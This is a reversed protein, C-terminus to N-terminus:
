ETPPHAETLKRSISSLQETMRALQRHLANALNGNDRMVRKLVMRVESDGLPTTANGWALKAMRDFEYDHRGIWCLLDRIVSAKHWNTRFRLSLM